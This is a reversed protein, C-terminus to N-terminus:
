RQLVARLASTVDPHEFTFGERELVAPVLRHSAYVIAEAQERGVMLRPVIRPTPIVAPRRLAAGLAKTFEANRVPEPSAMNVPGAVDHDLLFAAGRVWDDIAIFSWWQRGSGSRGGLGLKFPLLLPALAGGRPDLVIATRLFATRVGANVAPQTAAEWAQCVEAMFGGGPGHEETVLEDGTDGYWDSGSASLLVAPKRELGALTRALLATGERRSELIERKHEPTWRRPGVPSGALNVVADIGEFAVADIHGAAPDWRITRGDGVRSSPRVVRLVEHGERRLHDVLRSGIMGTSGTVAIQM